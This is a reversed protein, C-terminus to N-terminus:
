GKKLEGVLREIFDALQKQDAAEKFAGSPDLKDMVKAWTYAPGPLVWAFLAVGLVHRLANQAQLTGGMGGTVGMQATLKGKFPNDKPPRSLWDLLNKLPGPVSYNYEPTCILVADAKRVREKLDLVPQPIKGAQVLDDLFVPVSADTLDFSDVTVGLRQLEAEALKLVKKNLSEARTSGAFCLVNM